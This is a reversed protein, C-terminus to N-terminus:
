YICQKKADKLMEAVNKASEFHRKWEINNTTYRKENICCKNSIRLKKEWEINNTRCCKVNSCCKHRNRLTNKGNLITQQLVNKM